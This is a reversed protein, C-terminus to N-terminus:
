PRPGSRRPRPARSISMQRSAPRSWTRSPRCRSAGAGRFFDEALRDLAAAVLHQDGGLGGKADAVPRIVDARRAIVQECRDITRQPPEFCRCSRDTGAARSRRRARGDFFHEGGEVVEHTCALDAVDAARVERAPVQHLREGGDSRSPSSRAIDRVLGVVREDAAVVFPLQM